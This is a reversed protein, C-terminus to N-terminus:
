ESKNKSFNKSLERLTFSPVKTKYRGVRLITWQVIKEGIAFVCSFNSAGYELGVKKFVFFICVGQKTDTNKPTFSPVQVWVSLWVGRLRVRRGIGGGECQRYINSLFVKNTLFIKIYNAINKLTYNHM